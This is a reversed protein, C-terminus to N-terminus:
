VITSILQDSLERCLKNTNMHIDYFPELYTAYGLISVGKKKEVLALTTDV